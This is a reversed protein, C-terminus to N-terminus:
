DLSLCFQYEPNAQKCAKVDEALHRRIRDLDSENLPTGSAWKALVEVDYFRLTDALVLMEYLVNGSSTPIYMDAINDTGIRIPIGALAMELLRAVSNHIPANLSRLQRMSLAARPCCIIGIQHEKLGDLTKKFKEESYASPSIAHVLWVTPREQGQIEPSGIWRVAQILDLTQNQRPDNDQDVHVHVEKRLNKGLGLVRRIHEDAGVSGPRSDREPLAGIIDAIACAEEFTEWRSKPFKADTKFGFIPHAAISLDVIDKFGDRLEVAARIATGQIDPTADVFSVLRKTRTAAALKLCRTMRTKLNKAEYAPGKHLEGTLTQKVRLPVSSASLPTTGCHELYKNDLTGARDLHAHANLYGGYKLALEHIAGAFAGYFFEIAEKTMM